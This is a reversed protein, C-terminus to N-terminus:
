AREPECFIWSEASLNRQFALKGCNEPLACPMSPVIFKTRAWYDINRFSVGTIRVAAGTSFSDRATAM